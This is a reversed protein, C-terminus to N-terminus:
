YWVTQHHWQASQGPSPVMFPIDGRAIYCKFSSQYSCWYSSNFCYLWTIIYSDFISIYQIGTENTKFHQKYPISTGARNVAQVCVVYDTFPSLNRNLIVMTAGTVTVTTIVESGNSNLLTIHYSLIPIHSFPTDWM